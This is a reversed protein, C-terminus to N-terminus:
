PASTAASVGDHRRVTMLPKVDYQVTMLPKADYQVTADNCAYVSYKVTISFTDRRVSPARERKPQSEDRHLLAHWYPSSPARFRPWDCDGARTM